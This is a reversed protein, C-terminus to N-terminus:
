LEALPFSRHERPPLLFNQRHTTVLFKTFGVNEDALMYKRQLEVADMERRVREFLEASPAMGIFHVGAKPLPSVRDESWYEFPNEITDFDQRLFIVTGRVLREGYVTTTDKDVRTVHQMQANHGIVKYTQADQELESKFTSTDPAQSPSLVEPGEARRPNFMRHLRERHDLGYWRELDILIHSLHMATGGAFYSSPTADTYGPITEFSPLNGQALGHVHSSTFGMFLMAGDPIKDAGPIGQRTAIIKPLNKGLFGRRISTVRFLDAVNVSDVPIGNLHKEGPYFLARIVATINDQYDSKFHFCIDNDELVIGMPDKPFRVADILAWRGVRGDEIAKPMHQDVLQHPLYREFYPLGYAVQMFMGSPQVPFISEIEELARALRHQAARLAAADLTFTLDASVVAHWAPPVAVQVGNHDEQTIGPLEYQTKLTKGNYRKAYDVVKTWNLSTQENKM